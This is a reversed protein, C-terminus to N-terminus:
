KKQFVKAKCQTQIASKLCTPYCKLCEILDRSLTAPKWETTYKGVTQSNVFLDLNGSPRFLELCRQFSGIFLFLESVSFPPDRPRM